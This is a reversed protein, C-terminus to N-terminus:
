KGRASVTIKEKIMVGPIKKTGTFKVWQKIPQVKITIVQAPEIGGNILWELFKRYDQVEVDFDTSTSIGEAKTVTHDPVVVPVFVADLEDERGEKILKKREKEEQKAAAAMAKAEAEDALRKQELQYAGITEKVVKEADIYPALYKKKQDLATQWAQYASKCQPEMAAEVEKMKTKIAVLFEAAANYEPQNHIVMQNAIDRLALGTEMEKGQKITM